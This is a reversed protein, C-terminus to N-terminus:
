ARNFVNDCTNYFDEIDNFDLWEARFMDRRDGVYVYYGPDYTGCDWPSVYGGEAFVKQAVEVAFDNEAVVFFVEDVARPSVELKKGDEDFFKLAGCTKRVEMSLEYCQCEYEDEFEKGDNAIFVTKITM